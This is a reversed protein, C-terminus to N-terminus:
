DGQGQGGGGWGGECLLDPHWPLLPRGRVDGRNPPHGIEVAIGPKHTWYGESGGWHLLAAHSPPRSVSWLPLGVEVQLGGLM